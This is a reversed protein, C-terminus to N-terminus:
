SLPRPPSVLKAWDKGTKAAAHTITPVSVRGHTKNIFLSKRCMGGREKMEWKVDMCFEDM